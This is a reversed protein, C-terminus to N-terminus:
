GEESELELATGESAIHVEPDSPDESDNNEETELQKLVRWEGQLKTMETLHEAAKEEAGKIITLQENRAAQEVNFKSESELIREQLTM